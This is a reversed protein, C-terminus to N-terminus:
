PADLVINLTDDRREFRLYTGSGDRAEVTLAKHPPEVPMDPFRSSLYDYLYPWDVGLLDLGVTDKTIDKSVDVVRDHQMLIASQSRAVPEM